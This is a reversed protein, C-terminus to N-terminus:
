KVMTDLFGSINVRGRQEDVADRRMGQRAAVLVHGFCITRSRVRGCMAHKEGRKFSSTRFTPFFSLNRTLFVRARAVQMKKNGHWVAVRLKKIKKWEVAGKKERM